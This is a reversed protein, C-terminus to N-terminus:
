DFLKEGTVEELKKITSSGAIGDATLGYKEQFKVVAQFTSRGFKQDAKLDAPTLGLEKRLLLQLEGVEESFDGTKLVRPQGFGQAPSINVKSATTDGWIGDVTIKKEPHFENWLEQFAKVQLKGLDVGGGTYDFHWRDWDGLWKWNHQSMVSKWSEPDQIDIALGDNHNSLGPPAAASIGCIGQLYQQHLMHQQMVTRLCSNIHLPIGRKEVVKVLDKYANTQLYPNNQSGECIILPHNIRTLVNSNDAIIKELVQLSLGQIQGTSCGPIARSVNM